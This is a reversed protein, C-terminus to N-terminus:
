MLRMASRNSSTRRWTGSRRKLRQLQDKLVLACLGEEMRRLTIMRMGRHLLYDLIRIGLEGCAGILAERPTSSASPVTYMISLLIGVLGKEKSYVERLIGPGHLNYQRSDYEFNNTVDLIVDSCGFNNAWVLKGICRGLIEDM